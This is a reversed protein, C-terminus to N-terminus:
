KQLLRLRYNVFAMWISCQIPVENWLYGTVDQGSSLRCFGSSRGSKGVTASVRRLIMPWSALRRLSRDSFLFKLRPVSAPLEPLRPSSLM